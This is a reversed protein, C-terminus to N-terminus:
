HRASAPRQAAPLQEWRRELEREAKSAFFGQPAFRRSAVPADEHSDGGGARIARVTAILSTIVVVIALTVFVISLIGQWFSARLAQELTVNDLQIAISM